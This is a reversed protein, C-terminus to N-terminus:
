SCRGGGDMGRRRLQLVEFSEKNCVFVQRLEEVIVNSHCVRSQQHWGGTGRGDPVFCLDQPSLAKEMVAGMRQFESGLDMWSEGEREMNLFIM